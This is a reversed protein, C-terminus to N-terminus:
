CRQMFDNCKARQRTWCGVCFHFLIKRFVQSTGHGFRASCLSCDVLRIQM